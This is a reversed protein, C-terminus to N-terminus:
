WGSRDPIEVAPILRPAAAPQQGGWAASSFSVGADAATVWKWARASLIFIERMGAPPPEDAVAFVLAGGDVVDVRDADVQATSDDALTITYRTTM